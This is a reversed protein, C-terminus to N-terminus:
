VGDVIVPISLKCKTCVCPATFGRSGVEYTPIAEDELVIGLSKACSECYIDGGPLIVFVDGYPGAPAPGFPDRAEEQKALKELSKAIREFTRILKPVHGDIFQRGMVTQWFEPKNM